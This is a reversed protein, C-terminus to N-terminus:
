KDQLDDAASGIRNDILYTSLDVPEPQINLQLREVAKNRATKAKLIQESCRAIDSPTMTALKERLIWRCVSSHVEAQAAEDILHADTINVQGKVDM